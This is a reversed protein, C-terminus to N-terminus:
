KTVVVRLLVMLLLFRGAAKDGDGVGSGASPVSRKTLGASTASSTDSSGGESTGTGSNTFNGDGGGDSGGDGGGSDGGTGRGKKAGGKRGGKGGEGGETEDPVVMKGDETYEFGSDGGEGEGGGGAGTRGGGGGGGAGTRGGGGGGGAGSRGGGGGGGAGTRGGGGAVTAGSFLNRPHAQSPIFLPGGAHKLDLGPRSRTRGHLSRRGTGALRQSPPRVTEGAAAGQ